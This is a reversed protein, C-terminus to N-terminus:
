LGKSLHIKSFIDRIWDICQEKIQKPLILWFVAFLVVLYFCEFILCQLHYFAIGSIALILISYFATKAFKIKFYKRTDFIRYIFLFAFTLISSLVIGYIGLFQVFLYNFGLNIISAMIVGPIVKATQKACLYGLDLFSALGYFIVSISM